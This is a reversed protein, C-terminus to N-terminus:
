GPDDAPHVPLADIEELTRGLARQEISDREDDDVLLHEVEPDSERGLDRVLGDGYLRLQDYARDMTRRLEQLSAAWAEFVDVFTGEEVTAM